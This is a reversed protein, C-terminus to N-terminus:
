SNSIVNSYNKRLGMDDALIGGFHYRDLIKLWKFGTKQYYRLVSNLNEPVKIEEELQEKDLQNIINKYEDNKTIETGKIEKLLQNFYSIRYVPLKLEENELDKYSIDMGTVLKELFKAEKNNELDIFSGDKLRHYKKKLSYKSMIEELEEIDIDLNKFDISLLNNEVKVGIGGIKKEKIQKRKFNDTALVEFHQMYYNIDETLFEYIKDNDPLIFRLNKTELMFGTQRFINLANTEELMNRPFKIKKNEELPNFENGEYDFRVDAILYDNSDFDLFVKVILEKPMYKKISDETMNKLNIANKVRPIIISFLQTLEKEGLKVENIYNKRFLELLKLNSNEFEKTCRYLKKDDLIYKYDKGKIINVKYIEINPVIIYDKNETKKLEFEIEPQEETFEIEETNCDKQFIIKRGKLVDFLDDIASNGVIISTESLAKGYYKYNSNSNSNAYKIVEAYKMVFELLQRSNNEFAEKTHIFQLKEGYRYFEKNLMRTYFESLNKIKYMKKNGIKFQLKIGTLFRNYEANVEIKVKKDSTIQSIANVLNIEEIQENYFTNVLNKFGRYKIENNKSIKRASPEEDWFKTQEFKLLTAVIHKCASYNKQYDQCECSAVNLEGNKVDINVEYTDFNGNVEAALSFNNANEYDAKRIKVKGQQVYAKAKSLRPTGAENYIEESLEKNIQM